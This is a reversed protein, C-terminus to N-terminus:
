FSARNTIYQRDAPTLQPFFKAALLEKFTYWYFTQRRREDTQVPEQQNDIELEVFNICFGPNGELTVVPTAFYEAQLGTEEWLERLAAEPPTEGPDMKGCVMEHVMKLGRQRQQILVKEDRMVVAVVIQKM